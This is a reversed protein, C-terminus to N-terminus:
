QTLPILGVFNRLDKDTFRAGISVFGDRQRQDLIDDVGGTLYLWRFPNDSEPDHFPYLTGYGRLYAGNSNGFDFAEGSVALQPIPRVDFGIGGFSEFIGARITLPGWRRALQASLRLENRTTTIEETGSNDDVIRTESVPYPSNVVGLSYYKTDEGPILRVEFHEKTVLQQTLLETRFDVQVGVSTVQRLLDDASQAVREASEAFGTASSMFGEANETVSVARTYLEDDTLLRGLTGEQSALQGTFTEINTASTRLQALLGEVEGITGDESSL